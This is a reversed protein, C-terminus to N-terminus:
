KAHQFVGKSKMREYAADVDYTKHFEDFKNRRNVKVGFYYSVSAAVAVTMAIAFDRKTKSLLLNRLAPKATAM